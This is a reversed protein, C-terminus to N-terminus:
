YGRPNFILGSRTRRPETSNRGTMAGAIGGLIVSIITSRKGLSLLYKAIIYAVGAGTAGRLLKSLRDQQYPTLLSVQNSLEQKQRLSLLASPQSYINAVVEGRNPVVHGPRAMLGAGFQAKKVFSSKMMTDHATFPNEYNRNFGWSDLGGSLLGTPSSNKHILASLGGLGAGGIGAGAMMGPIVDGLGGRVLGVLGGIGSGGLAGLAASTMPGSSLSGVIPKLVPNAAFERTAKGAWFLPSAELSGPYADHMGKQAKDIFNNLREWYGQPRERNAYLTSGLAGLGGLGLASMTFPNRKFAKRVGGTTRLGLIKLYPGIESAKLGWATGKFLSAPLKYLTKFLEGALSIAQKKM